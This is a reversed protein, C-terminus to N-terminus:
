DHHTGRRALLYRARGFLDEGIVVDRWARDRALQATAADRRCDIEIAIWGGPALIAPAEDLLRRTAALGSEGSRLAISPEYDRVSPPLTDYEADSLYPPNSVVLDVRRGALPATLDGELWTVVTGAAAGNERALALADASIDVGLVEDFKGEQALSIAVAGSGTGIDVAVGAAVRSLALDVLGETEPRPILARRDCRLTLHRFGTWGSVYAMPEGAARRAVAVLYRAADDVPVPADRATLYSGPLSLDTWLRLAERRPDDIAARGLIQAGQAALAAITAPADVMPTKTARLLVCHM